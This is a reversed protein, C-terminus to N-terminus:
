VLELLGVTIRDFDDGLAVPWGGGNEGQVLEDLIPDGDVGALNVGTGECDHLPESVLVGIQIPLEDTDDLLHLGM